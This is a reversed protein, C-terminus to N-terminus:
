RTDTESDPTPPIAREAIGSGFQVQDRGNDKATYLAGDAALMLDDITGIGPAPYRAIGVSVSLDQVLTHGTTTTVDVVLSHVRRRLREALALLETPDANPALVVFEEGGWRGATCAGNIESDIARAVAHLVQDGAIHGYTDNVRKFHDLDLMLVAIGPGARAAREHAYRAVQYWWAATYLGTKIDTRAAKRLQPLLVGRHLAFLGALVGALLLPNYVVLGAAVLGLGLAGLELINDDINHLVQHARLNPASMVIAGAVMTVNVLYRLAAAAAVVALGGVTTPLRPHPGHDVALIAAAAQTAIVVTSASFV